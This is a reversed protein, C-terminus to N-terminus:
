HSCVLVAAVAKELDDLEECSLLCIDHLAALHHEASPLDETQM